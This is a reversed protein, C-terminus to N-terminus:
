AAYREADARKLELGFGPRSPDPTLFGGTPDLVGDFLLRDVQAHDRFYELHRVNQVACAVPAHLSQATHGSVQLGHAAAVAAARLWETVGACRSIDIQLVDVAEARCMRSFYVLDYGYEGAAIDIGAAHRIRRLGDLDDSSVPEEFWSVGAEMLADCLRLAQKLAYAGNADVYLEAEAGIAERATAVRELDRREDTGWDTGIKMKVAPIGDKHVWSGLQDALQGETWSTFGGSGYVSVRDRVAGLLRALPLGLLKAKLDWLSTDVAAIAMSAIGPRGMNRISRVMAGWAAPVDMVDVGTVQLALTDRILTACAAPGYTFGLGREGAAAAEVVVVTTSDWTLTGDSEPADLPVTFTSVDVKSIGTEPRGEM